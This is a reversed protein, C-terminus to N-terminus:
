TINRRRRRGRTLSVALAVMWGVVLLGGVVAGAANGGEGTGANAAAPIPRVDGGPPQAPTEARRVPDDPPAAALPTALAIVVAVLATVLVPARALRVARM